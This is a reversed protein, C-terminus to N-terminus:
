LEERQFRYTALLLFLIPALSTVLIPVVPFPYVPGLPMGMVLAVGVDSLQTPLILGLKPFLGVLTKGGLILALSIGLIPGRTRFLTGLIITLALFFLLTISQLGVVALLTNLTIGDAILDFQLYGVASPLLVAVLWLPVLNGVFKALLFAIRSVPKSLIWAATGSQREGVLLDQGTIVAGIAAAINGLGAFIQALMEAIPPAGVDAPTAAHLVPMFAMLGNIIAVWIVAQVLLRRTQFWSSFEKQLLNGFGSMMDTRQIRQLKEVSAAM